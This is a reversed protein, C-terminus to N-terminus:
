SHFNNKLLLYIEKAKSFKKEKEQLIHNKIKDKEVKTNRFLTDTFDILVCEVLEIDLYINELYARKFSIKGKGNMVNISIKKGSFVKLKLLNIGKILYKLKFDADGEFTAEIFNAGGKFTAEIFYAVEEFTAETFDAQGKFTTESLNAVGSFTAKTFYAVEEFTAETFDAQGKFTTETFYAVRSFTAETFYAFRSFTAETFNAVGEFTAETFNALKFITINLDKKFDIDVIFIFKEFDYDGDEKKIKNVYEKLAEKFEGVNKEEASAHFICYKSEKHTPRGCTPCKNTIDEEKKM